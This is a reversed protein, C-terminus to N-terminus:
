DVIPLRLHSLYDADHLVRQVAVTMDEATAEAVLIAANPNRDFRAFNSSTIEAM